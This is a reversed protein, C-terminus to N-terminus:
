QQVEEEWNNAWEETQTMVPELELGKKTLECEVRVPMQPYVHRVVIGTTELEKLREVLM